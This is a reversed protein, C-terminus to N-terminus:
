MAGVNKLVLEDDEPLVRPAQQTICINEHLRPPTKLLSKCKNKSDSFM